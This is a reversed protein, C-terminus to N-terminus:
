MGLARIYRQVSRVSAVINLHHKLFAASLERNFFIHRDIAMLQATTVQTHNMARSFSEKDLVSM